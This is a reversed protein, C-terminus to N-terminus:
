ELSWHSVSCIAVFRHLQYDRNFCLCDGFTLNGSKHPLTNREGKRGSSGDFERLVLCSQKMQFTQLRDEGLAPAARTVHISEPLVCTAQLSCHARPDSLQQLSFTNDRVWLLCLDSVPQLQEEAHEETWCPIEKGNRLLNPPPFPWCGRRRLYFLFLFRPTIEKPLWGEWVPRSLCMPATVRSYIGVSWLSHVKSLLEM